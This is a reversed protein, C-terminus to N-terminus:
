LCSFFFTDLFYINDYSNCLISLYQYIISDHIPKNHSILDRFTNTTISHYRKGNVNHVETNNPMTATKIILDIDCQHISMDIPHESRHIPLDPLSFDNSSLTPNPKSNPCHSFANSEHSSTTLIDSIKDCPHENCKYISESSPEKNVNNRTKMQIQNLDNSQNICINQDDSHHQTDTNTQEDTSVNDVSTVGM